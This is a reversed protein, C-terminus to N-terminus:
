ARGTQPTPPGSLVQSAPAPRACTTGSIWSGGQSTGPSQSSYTTSQSLAVFPETKAPGGWSGSSSGFYGAFNSCYLRVAAIVFYYYNTDLGVAIVGLLAPVLEFGAAVVPGVFTLHYNVGEEDVSETLHSM